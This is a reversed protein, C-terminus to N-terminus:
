RSMVAIAMHSDHGCMHAVGNNKSVYNHTNIEQIPLADMDTRLAVCRKAYPVDLDATFGEGWSKRITYGLESLITQCYRSTEKEKFSLEPYQHLHRRQKIVWDSLQNAQAKIRSLTM